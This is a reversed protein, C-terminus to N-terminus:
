KNSLKNTQKKREKESKKKVQGIEKRSRKRRGYDNTGRKNRTGIWEKRRNSSKQNTVAIINCAVNGAKLDTGICSASVFVIATAIILM